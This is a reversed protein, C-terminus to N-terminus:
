NLQNQSCSGFLPARGGRTGEGARAIDGAIGGRGSPREPFLSALGMEAESCLRHMAAEARGLINPTSPNLASAGLRQPATTGQLIIEM